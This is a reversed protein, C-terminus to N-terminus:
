CLFDLNINIKTKLNVLLKNLMKKNDIKQIKNEKEKETQRKIEKEFSEIEEYNRGKTEEEDYFLFYNINAPSFLYINGDSCSILFNGTDNSQVISTIAGNFGEFDKEKDVIIDQIFTITTKYNQKEFNIKYLKIMGIAKELDFGGVFFYNTDYIKGLSNENSKKILLIQSFCYPEFDGTEYFENFIDQNDETRTNILLIGNKQYRSYKKCACILIKDKNLSKKNIILLLSNQSLSFSYGEKEYVVNKSTKDYIIISDKGNVMVRNSTFSSLTENIKIGVNYTYEFIKKYDIRDSFDKSIYGAKVNNIIYNNREIELINCASIMYTDVSPKNSKKTEYSILSSNESSYDIIKLTNKNENYKIECIGFPKHKLNVVTKNYKKDYIYIERQNGGSVYYGNNLKFLFDASNSHTAIIKIFQIVKYESVEESSIIGLLSIQEEKKKKEEKKNRKEFQDKEKIIKAIDLNKNYKIERYDYDNIKSILYFFGQYNDNVLINEDKFPSIMDENLSYFDYECTINYTSNLNNNNEEQNFKLKILLNYKNIFQKQIEEKVYYLFKLFILFNKLLINKYNELKKTKKNKIITNQIEEEKEEDDDLIIIKINNNEDNKLLFSSNTLTKEMYEYDNPLTLKKNIGEIEADENDGYINNVKYKEEYINTNITEINTNNENNIIRKSLYLEWYYESDVLKKIVCELEDNKEFTKQEKILNIIDRRTKTLLEIQYIYTHEKIIYLLLYFFNLKNKVNLDNPGNIQYNLEYEKKDLENKLKNFMTETLKIHEIDLQKLINM